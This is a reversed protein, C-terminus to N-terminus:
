SKVRSDVGLCKHSIVDQKLTGVESELVDVISCLSALKDKSPQLAKKIANHIMSPLAKALRVLKNEHMKARQAINILDPPLSNYTEATYLPSTKTHTSALPSPPAINGTNKARKVAPAEKNTKTALTVVSNTQVM